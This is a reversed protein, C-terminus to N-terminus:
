LRKFPGFKKSQPGFDSKKSCFFKFITQNLMWFDSNSYFPIFYHLWWGRHSLRSKEYSSGGNSRLGTQLNLNLWPPEVYNLSVNKWNMMRQRFIMEGCGFRLCTRLSSNTQQPGNSFFGSRYKHRPKITATQCLELSCKGLFRNKNMKSLFVSKEFFGWPVLKFALPKMKQNRAM